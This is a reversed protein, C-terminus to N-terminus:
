TEGLTRCPRSRLDSVYEDPAGAAEAADAILGLFRASPLGGEYANLVYTWALVDGDLTSVRLKIKSYTSLPAGQWSDLHEEDARTVDYLVVYVASGPEEVITALSGEWGVEEGGFTLRWGALWGSGRVPSHPCREMMQEPDMNTGYAAYLAM